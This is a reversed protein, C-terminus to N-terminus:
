VWELVKFVSKTNLIGLLAKNVKRYYCFTRLKIQSKTFAEGLMRYNVTILKEM